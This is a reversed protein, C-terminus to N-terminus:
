KEFVVTLIKETLEGFTPGCTTQNQGPLTANFEILVVNENEDVALDWAIYKMHPMKSAYDLAAARVRDFCPIRFDEFRVGDTTQEVM